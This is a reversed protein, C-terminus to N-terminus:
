LRAPNVNTDAVASSKGRGKLAHAVADLTESFGRRLVFFPEGNRLGKRIDFSPSPLALEDDPEIDLVGDLDSHVQGADLVQVAEAHSM